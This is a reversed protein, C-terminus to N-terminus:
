SGAAIAREIERLRQQALAAHQTNPFSGTISLLLERARRADHLHAWHIEALRLTLFAAEDPPWERVLAEELERAASGPDDLKEAYLRAVESIALTDTPNRDLCEHYEEIATDFDGRAIAALADAHPSRELRDNPNFFFNGIWDGLIPLFFVVLVGGAAVGTLVMAGFLMVVRSQDVIEANMALRAEHFLVFGLYLLGAVFALGSSIRM